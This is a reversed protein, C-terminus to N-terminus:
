STGIRSQVTTRSPGLIVADDIRLDDDLARPTLSSPASWSLPFFRHLRL